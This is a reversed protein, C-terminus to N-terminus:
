REKLRGIYVILALPMIILGMIGYIAFSLKMDSIYNQVIAEKSMFLNKQDCEIEWIRRREYYTFKPTSVKMSVHCGILFENNKGFPTTFSNGGMSNLFVPFEFKIEKGSDTKVVLHPDNRATRVVVGNTTELIEPPEFNILFTSVLPQVALLLWIATALSCSKWYKKFNKINM